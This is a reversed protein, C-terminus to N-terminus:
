FIVSSIWARITEKCIKNFQVRVFLFGGFSLRYNYLISAIITEMEVMTHQASHPGVVEINDDAPILDKNPFMSLTVNQLLVVLAPLLCAIEIAFPTTPM